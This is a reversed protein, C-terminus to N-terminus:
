GMDDAFIYKVCMNTCFHLHNVCFFHLHIVHYYSISPVLMSEMTTSTMAPSKSTPVVQAIAYKPTCTVMCGIAGSSWLSLRLLFACNMTQPRTIAATVTKCITRLPFACRCSILCISSRLCFGGFTKTVLGGAVTM